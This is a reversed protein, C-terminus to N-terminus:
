LSVLIYRANVQIITYWLLVPSLKHTHTHRNTHKQRDTHKHTHMHTHIDSYTDTHIHKHTHIHTHTHTHTHTQTFNECPSWPILLKCNKTLSQALIIWYSHLTNEHLIHTTNMQAISAVVPCKHEKRMRKNIYDNIQICHCKGTSHVKKSHHKVDTICHATTLKRKLLSSTKM